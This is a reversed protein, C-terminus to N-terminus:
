AVTGALTMRLKVSLPNSM